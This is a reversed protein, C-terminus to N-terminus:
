AMVEALAAAADWADTFTNYSPAPAFRLVDPERTDVLVGRAALLRELAAAGPGVRVSLQAGREAPDSPTILTAGPIASLLEALHATLRLSKERLAGLGVRDFLRLSAGVPAMALISPNSVKWGDAGGRPVFPEHGARTFRTEPDNGWWGALRVLDLDYAHRDHVFFGSAAGPGANGYKYTCWAAFDAGWHHLDLEVNAFAHALDLGVVVGRERLLSVAPGLPLLQGTYYNVGGLLAMAVRGDHDDLTAAIDDLTCRDPHETRIEVVAVAPDFGHWRAQSAVAYRDSPFAHPEVLIAFRQPTPRYFSAMLLHLQVTLTGALAVEHELAGVLPAQLAAIPEDYRYWPAAGDFHGEVALEGWQDLVQDVAARASWPMLGLSNGCLYVAAPATADHRPHTPVSFEDRLAALPDAADLAESHARDPLRM